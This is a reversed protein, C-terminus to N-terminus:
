LIYVIQPVWLLQLIFTDTSTTPQLSILTQPRFRWYTLNTRMPKNTWFSNLPIVCLAKTKISIVTTYGPFEYGLFCVCTESARPTRTCLWGLSKTLREHLSKNEFLNESLSIKSIHLIHIDLNSHEPIHYPRIFPLLTEFFSATYM